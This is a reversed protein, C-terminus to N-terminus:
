RLLNKTLTRVHTEALTQLKAFARDLIVIDRSNGAGSFLDVADDYTVWLVEETEYDHQGTSSVFKMLYYHAISYSSRGSGLYGGSMITAVAGSEELVERLAAQELSEGDEVRGKPFQWPGYDNSPLVICYLYDDTTEDYKVVVGGASIWKEDHRESM